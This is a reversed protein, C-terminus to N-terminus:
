QQAEIKFGLAKAADSDFYMTIKYKGATKFCTKKKGYEEIPEDLFAADATMNYSNDYEISWAATGTLKFNTGAVADIIISSSDTAKDYTMKTFTWDNTSGAYYANMHDYDKDDYTTVCSTMAFAAVFLSALIAFLKIKRM